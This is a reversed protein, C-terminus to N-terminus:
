YEDARMVTLVRFTVDADSPDPSHREKQRDYYDIKWFYVVGDHQFSGFDHERHPDNADSFESFNRVKLLVALYDRLGLINVGPTIFLDGHPPFPFRRFQDNLERIRQTSSSTM